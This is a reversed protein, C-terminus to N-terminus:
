ASEKAPNLHKAVANEAAANPADINKGLQKRLRRNQLRLGVAQLWFFLGGLLLGLALAGLVALYLPMSLANVFPWLQLAVPDPNSLAFSVCILTAPISLLWSFKMYFKQLVSFVVGFAM